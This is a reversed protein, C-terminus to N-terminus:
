VRYNFRYSKIKIIEKNRYLYNRQYQNTTPPKIM